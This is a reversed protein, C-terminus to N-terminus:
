KNTEKGKRAAIVQNVATQGEKTQPRSSWRGSTWLGDREEREGPKKVWCELATIPTGPIKWSAPAETEMWKVKVHVGNITFTKEHNM